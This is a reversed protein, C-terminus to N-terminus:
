LDVVGRHGDYHIVLVREAVAQARLAGKPLKFPVKAWLPTDVAAPRILTVRRKREEKGLVEVFAELGAKAAAYASLRPLRLRESIAGMFVLHADAALIPLSFHVAHHAGVLNADLIRRWDEPSLGSVKQATIDGAAYIWLDVEVEQQNAAAVAQQVAAPDGVDVEYTYPTLDAVEAIHHGLALVTWDEAKLKSVLARGIGGSAGWVMATKMM